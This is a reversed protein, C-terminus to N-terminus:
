VVVNGLIKYTFDLVNPLGSCRHYTSVVLDYRRRHRKHIWKNTDVCLWEFRINKDEVRGLCPIRCTHFSRLLPLLPISLVMIYFTNPVARGCDLRLWVRLCKTKVKDRRMYNSVERFWWDRGSETERGTLTLYSLKWTSVFYVKRSVPQCQPLTLRQWVISSYRKDKSSM